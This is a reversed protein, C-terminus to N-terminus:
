ILIPEEESFNNVSNVKKEVLNAAKFLGQEMLSQRDISEFLIKLLYTKDVEKMKTTDIDLSELINKIKTEKMFRLLKSMKEVKKEVLELKNEAKDKFKNLSTIIQPVAEKKFKKYYYFVADQKMGIEKALKRYPIGKIFGDKIKDIDSNTTKKYFRKEKEM